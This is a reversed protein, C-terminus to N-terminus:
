NLKRKVYDISNVPSPDIKKIIAVYITALALIYILEILKTLINGNNSINLEEVDFTFENAFINNTLNVFLFIFLFLFKNKM